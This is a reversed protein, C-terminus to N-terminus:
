GMASFTPGRWNNDSTLNIVTYGLRQANAPFVVPFDRGDVARDAKAQAAPAGARVTEEVGQAVNNFSYQDYCAMDCPGLVMDVHPESKAANPFEKGSMLAVHAIAARVVQADKRDM